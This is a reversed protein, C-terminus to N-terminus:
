KRRYYLNKGSRKEEIKGMEKLESIKRSVYEQSYGLAKALNETSMWENLINLIRKHVDKFELSKKESLLSDLKQNIRDMKMELIELKKRLEKSDM